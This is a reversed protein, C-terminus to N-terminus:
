QNNPNDTSEASPAEVVSATVEDERYVKEVPGRWSKSEPDAAMKEALRTWAREALARKEARRTPEDAVVRGKDLQVQALLRWGRSSDDVREEALLRRWVDLSNQDDELQDRLYLGTVYRVEAPLADVPLGLRLDEAARNSAQQFAVKDKFRDIASVMEPSPSRKLVADFHTEFARKWDAPNESAMLQEGRVFLDEISLFEVGAQEILDVVDRDSGYLQEVSAYQDLAEKLKGDKRLARVEDLALKVPRRKAQLRAEDDAFQTGQSLKEMALTVIPKSAPDKSFLRVVSEFRSQANAKDEKLELRLAAVYQREAETAKPDILGTTKALNTRGRARTVEIKDRLTQIDGLLPSKPDSELIPVLYEEDARVMEDVPADPRDIIEAARRFKEEASIPWLMYTTFGVVAVLGAVLLGTSELLTEVGLAPRDEKRSKRKSTEERAGFVTALLTSFGSKKMDVTEVVAPPAKSKSKTPTSKTRRGIEMLRQMVVYADKPRDAPDQSLIERLLVDLEIPLDKNLSSPAPFVGKQREQMYEFMTEGVFPLRGTVVRYILLGLAYIDSKRTLDQGALQEPSM